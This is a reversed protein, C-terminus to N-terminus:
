LSPKGLVESSKVPGLDGSCQINGSVETISFPGNLFPVQVLSGLKAM